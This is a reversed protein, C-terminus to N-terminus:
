TRAAPAAVFAALRVAARRLQRLGRLRRDAALPMVWGLLTRGAVAVVTILGMALGARQAGLAPLLLSFLHAVLGIQAFLGSRGHRGRAHLFQATAGSCREPCRGPTRRRSRPLAPAPPM